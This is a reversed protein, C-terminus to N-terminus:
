PQADLTQMADWVGRIYGEPDGYLPTYVNRFWDIEEAGWHLWAFVRSEIEDYTLDPAPQAQDVLAHIDTQAIRAAYSSLPADQAQASAAICLVMLTVLTRKM